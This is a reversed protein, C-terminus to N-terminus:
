STGSQQRSEVKESSWGVPTESDDILGNFVNLGGPLIEPTTLTKSRYEIPEPLGNFNSDDCREHEGPECGVWYNLDVTQPPCIM